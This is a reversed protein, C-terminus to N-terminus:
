FCGGINRERKQLPLVVGMMLSFFFSFNHSVGWIHPLILPGRDEPLSTLVDSYVGKAGWIGWIKGGGNYEMEFLKM